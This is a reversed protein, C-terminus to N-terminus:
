LLEGAADLLRARVSELSGYITCGAARLHGGGDFKRALEQADMAANTRISIKYTEEDKQKITLGCVVGEIQRPISALEGLDEEYYGSERRMQLTVAVCAVRGDFHYEIDDLIRRWMEMEPRSHTEFMLQNIRVTEAGCRMMAIATEHAEINTNSYKFCGTDTTVGTFIANAIQVDPQVGLADALAAILVATAAADPDLLLGPSYDEHSVHHDIAYDCRGFREWVAGWQQVSATDVAVVADVQEGWPQLGERLFDYAAIGTGCCAVQCSKGLKQLIGALAYASGLADGDPNVHCVLCYHDHARLFAACEKVQREIESKMKM